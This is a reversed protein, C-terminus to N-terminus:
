RTLLWVIEDTRVPQKGPRVGYTSIVAYATAPASHELPSTNNLWYRLFQEYLEPRNLRSLNEVLRFDRSNDIVFSAPEADLDGSFSQYSPHPCQLHGPQTNKGVRTCVRLLRYSVPADPAFFDWYQHLGAYDIYHTVLQQLATHGTGIVAERM